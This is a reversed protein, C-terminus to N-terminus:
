VTEYKKVNEMSKSIVTPRMMMEKQLQEVSDVKNKYHDLEYEKVGKSKIDLVKL